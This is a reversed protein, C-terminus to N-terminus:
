IIPIVYTFVGSFLNKLILGLTTFKETSMPSITFKDFQYCINLFKKMMLQFFRAIILALNFGYGGRILLINVGLRKKNEVKIM